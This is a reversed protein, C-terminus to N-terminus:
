QKSGTSHQHHVVAELLHVTNGLYSIGGSSCCSSLGKLFLFRYKLGTQRHEKGAKFTVWISKEKKLMAPRSSGPREM